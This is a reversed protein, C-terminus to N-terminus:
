IYAQIDDLLKWGKRTSHNCVQKMNLLDEAESRHSYIIRLSKTSVGIREPM